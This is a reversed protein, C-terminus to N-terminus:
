KPLVIVINEWVAKGGCLGEYIKMNQIIAASALRDSTFM